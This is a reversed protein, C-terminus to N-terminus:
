LVIDDVSTSLTQANYKLKKALDIEGKSIDRMMM